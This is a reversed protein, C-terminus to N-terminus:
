AVVKVYKTKIELPQFPVGGGEYFKGFFEVYQLRTAHVYASLGSLALNLLHGFILIIIMFFIGIISGSVMQALINVVLAIVSTALTLALIRTYSLLDGLYSTIGYLTGLGSFVRKIPNRVGVASLFVIMAAGLIAMYSGFAYGLGYLPLGVIILFWPLTEVVAEYPKGLRWLNYFKLGLGVFLHIAGFIMSAIMLTMPESVPDFWLMPFKLRNNSIASLMNGFFSGFLLGFVIAAVSGQMFIICMRRMNGEVKVKYVLYACLLLLLLGYGADSLMVGFFFAYFPGMPTTPDVDMTKSPLSFMEVVAQYPEVFRKNKLLIPHEEDEPVPLIDIAVSYREEIAQKIEAGMSQPVYGQLVFLRGTNLLRQMASLKMDATLYYDHLLEFDNKYDSLALAEAEMLREEQDLKALESRWQANAKGYDEDMETPLKPLPAFDFDRLIQEVRAADEQRVVILLAVQGQNEALLELGYNGNLAESLSAKLQTIKENRSSLSGSFVSLQKFIKESKRSPLVVQEWASIQQLQAMLTARRNILGQLQSRNEELKTLREYIEAQRPGIAEFESAKVTRRITFLPKKEPRIKTASEIGLRLLALRKSLEIQLRKYENAGLRSLQSSGKSTESLELIASEFRFGANLFNDSDRFYINQSDPDFTKSLVGEQVMGQSLEALLTEAELDQEVSVVGLKSLASVLQTKEDALGVLSIKDLKVIAM